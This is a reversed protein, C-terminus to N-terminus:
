LAGLATLDETLWHKYRRKQRMWWATIRNANAPWGALLDETWGPLDTYSTLIPFPADPFLLRWFGQSDYVPSVDDAIPIAHSELAEFMRFSDPSVAGSPCPAIKAAMMCEAYELPDMGQTFGTTAEIRKVGSARSVAAFAAERRVHTNQASLFVDLNKTPTEAPLKRFHPTLGVGFFRTPEPYAAGVKPTQVWWKINRHVVKNVDFLNEEDGVRFALVWQHKALATSIESEHGVWERGPVVVIGGKTGMPYGQNWKFRQDGLLGTLVTQDWKPDSPALRGVPIV